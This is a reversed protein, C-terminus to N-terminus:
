RDGRNFIVTDVETNLSGLCKCTYQLAMRSNKHKWAPFDDTFLRGLSYPYITLAFRDM